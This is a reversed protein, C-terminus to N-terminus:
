CKKVGSVRLVDELTKAYSHGGYKEPTTIPDHNFHRQKISFRDWPSLEIPLIKILVKVLWNWLPLRPTRRIGKWDLLTDVAQDITIHPQALVLKKLAGQGPERNPLHTTTSLHGCIFAIDAAHIFHFRSYGKLFRALWLWDIAQSLGDTLYSTPFHSSSDIKGGFVLTPFVAIIKEAFPHSELEKLCQAKTQIYETGYKSAESLPQLNKNLISATSFYIIQELNNANLLRMFDKVAKVNVQFARDPDGWATATHIVRNVLSLEETFLYSDRLDGVLLKIRPHNSDVAKLKKPERLWLLLDADSNEILWSATYQGVCGSAGTILIKTKKM